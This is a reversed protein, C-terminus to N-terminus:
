AGAGHVEAFAAAPLHWAKCQTALIVGRMLHLLLRIGHKSRRGRPRTGAQRQMHGVAMGRPAHYSLVGFVAKLTAVAAMVLM